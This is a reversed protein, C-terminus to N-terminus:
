SRPNVIVLSTKFKIYSNRIHIKIIMLM